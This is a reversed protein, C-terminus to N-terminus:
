LLLRPMSHKGARKWATKITQFVALGVAFAAVPKGALTDKFKGVFKNIDIVKGMYVPAGIVFADYGELSTVTKM